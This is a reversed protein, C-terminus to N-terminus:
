RGPWRVLLAADVLLDEADRVARGPQACGAFITAYNDFSFGPKLEYDSTPWLSVAGVLLLPAVFFFM